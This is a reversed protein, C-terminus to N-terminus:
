HSTNGSPSDVPLVTLRLCTTGDPVFRATQVQSAFEPKSPFGPNSGDAAIGWNTIERVPASIEVPSNGTDWPCGALPKAAFRLQTTPDTGSLELAYNWKSAPQIDWAPFDKSTKAGWVPSASENISLSYVLPGREISATQHNWDHIKLPMPLHLSLVDGDAFTRHITTFSGATTLGAFPQGNIQLTPDATWGPVRLVLPFSVARSVHIVFDITESFPYDTKEDISVAVGDITTSFKSPAYLAAVIGGTPTILWQRLAFNPLFREVNGSCCEVDHGPRYELRDPNYRKCIGPATVVQNPSSFYQHSKFDKTISGFGANFITKEIHDAWTCDGSAMLLYGVSWTYDSVDCTEHYSWPNSGDLREEASHLGDALMHDRDIKRYGNATVDLMAHDGDYLYLLAPIKATENFTVGHEVIISDGLLAALGSHPRTKNFNDYTRKALALLREDGGHAYTWLMEEVNCVDRGSGFNAPRALYHRQLAQIMAPDPNAEYAAMLARFVVAHPWNIPGIDDPGLSGDAQPHALIYRVNANAENLIASDGTTLGLRELGDVLYGAQEYPWWQKSQPNADTPIKGAWLCTDYPYGSVAHHSALGNVQRRLMEALWGQPQISSPPAEMFAGFYPVTAKAQQTVLLILMGIAAARIVSKERM